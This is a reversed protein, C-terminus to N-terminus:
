MKSVLEKFATHAGSVHGDRRHNHAEQGPRGDQDNSGDSARAAPCSQGAPENGEGAPFARLAPVLKVAASLTAGLASEPPCGGGGGARHAMEFGDDEIRGPAGM